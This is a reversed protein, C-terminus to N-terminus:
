NLSGDPLNYTRTTEDRLTSELIRDDEIETKGAPSAYKSDIARTKGNDDVLWFGPRHDDITEYLDAIRYPKEATFGYPVFDGNFCISDGIRANKAWDDDM